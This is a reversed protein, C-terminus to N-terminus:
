LFYDLWNIRVLLRDIYLFSGNLRESQIQIRQRSDLVKFIYTLIRQLQRIIGDLDTICVFIM